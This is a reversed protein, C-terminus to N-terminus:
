VYFLSYICMTYLLDGVCLHTGLAVEYTWSTELDLLTLRPVWSVCYAICYQVTYYLEYYKECLDYTYLFCVCFIFIKLRVTNFHLLVTCYSAYLPQCSHRCRQFDADQLSM